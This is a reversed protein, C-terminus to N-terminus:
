NCVNSKRCFVPKGTQPVFRRSGNGRITLLSKFVFASKFFEVEEGKKFGVWGATSWVPKQSIMNSFKDNVSYFGNSDENLTHITDRRVLQSQEMARMNHHNLM